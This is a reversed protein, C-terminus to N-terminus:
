ASRPVYALQEIADLVSKHTWAGVFGSNNLVFSVATTSVGAKKAINQITIRCRPM